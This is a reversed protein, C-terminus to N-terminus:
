FNILPEPKTLGSFFLCEKNHEKVQKDSLPATSRMDRIIEYNLINNSDNLIDTYVFEDISELTEIFTNFSVDTFKNSYSSPENIYPPDLFYCANPYQKLITEYSECLITANLLKSQIMNFDLENLQTFREGYSNNMGNPGFRLFSNITSNALMHLGYGEDLTDTNWLKENFWNRFNYYSEKSEKINGFTSSVMEIFAIYSSYEGNQFTKYIRVINRDIDNLIYNDFEKTLNFFIAGSGLFPEVYTDATSSNLYPNISDIYKLKTGSYNFFKLSV